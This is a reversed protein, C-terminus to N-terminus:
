AGDAARACAWTTLIQALLDLAADPPFREPSIMRQAGLGDVVAFLLQAFGRFQADDLGPLSSAFLRAYVQTSFEYMEELRSSNRKDRTMAPILEFFAVYTETDKIMEIKARMFARLSDHDCLVAESPISFLSLLRRNNDHIWSDVVLEILGAKNGFYYRIATKNLRCENAINEISLYSYGREVLLRRTTEVIRRATDNLAELPDSLPPEVVVDRPPEVVV